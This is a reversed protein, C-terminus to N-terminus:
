GQCFDTKFGILSANQCVLLKNSILLSSHSDTQSPQAFHQKCCNCSWCVSCNTNVSTAHSKNCRRFSGICLNHWGCYGHAWNRSCPYVSHELIHQIQETSSRRDNAIPLDSNVRNADGSKRFDRFRECCHCSLVYDHAIDVPFRTPSDQLSHLRNARIVSDQLNAQQHTAHHISARTLKFM